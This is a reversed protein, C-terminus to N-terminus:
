PTESRQEPQPSPAEARIVGSDDLGAITVSDGPKPAGACVFDWVVKGGIPSQLRLVGRGKSFRVVGAKVGVIQERAKLLTKREFRPRVGKVWLGLFLASYAGFLGLQAYIPLSPAVAVTAGAALGGAGFWLLVYSNLLLLDIVLLGVGLVIWLLWPEM